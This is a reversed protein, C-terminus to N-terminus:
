NAPDPEPANIEAEPACITEAWYLVAMELTELHIASFRLRDKYDLAENLISFIADERRAHEDKLVPRIKELRVREAYERFIASRLENTPCALLACTTM